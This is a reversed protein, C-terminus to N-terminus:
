PCLGRTRPFSLQRNRSTPEAWTISHFSRDDSQADITVIAASMAAAEPRFFKLQDGLHEGIRRLGNAVSLVTSKVGFQNRNTDVESAWEIFHLAQRGQSFILVHSISNLSIVSLAM